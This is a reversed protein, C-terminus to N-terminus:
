IAGSAVGQYSQASSIRHLVMKAENLPRGKMRGELVATGIVIFM